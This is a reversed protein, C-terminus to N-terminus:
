ISKFKCIVYNYIDILLIISGIIEYFLIYFFVILCFINLLMSEFKVIIEM